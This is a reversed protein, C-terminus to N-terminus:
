RRDDSGQEHTEKGKHGRGYLPLLRLFDRQIYSNRGEGPNVPGDRLRRSVRMRMPRRGASGAGFRALMRSSRITRGPRAFAEGVPLFERRQSRSLADLPGHSACASHRVFYVLLRSKIVGIKRRLFVRNSLILETSGTYNGTFSEFFRRKFPCILRAGAFDPIIRKPPAAM